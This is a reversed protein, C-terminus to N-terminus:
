WSVMAEAAMVVHKKLVELSPSKVVERPLRIWHKVVEETFFTKRVGWIFRGPAVQLWKREEQLKNGTLLSLNERM